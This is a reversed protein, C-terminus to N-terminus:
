CWEGWQLLELEEKKKQEQVLLVAHVGEITLLDEQNGCMEGVDPSKMELGSEAERSLMIALLTLGCNL